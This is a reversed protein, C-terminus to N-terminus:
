GAPKPLSAHEPPGSQSGGLNYGPNIGASVEFISRRANPSGATPPTGHGRTDSCSKASAAGHELQRRRYGGARLLRPQQRGGVLLHWRALRQDPDPEHDLLHFASEITGNWHRIIGPGGQNGHYSMPAWPYNPRSKQSDSPCILTALANYAVTSNQPQDPAWGQNYANYLPGQEINPLLCVPWSANWGWSGTGGQGGFTAGMWMDEAPIVNLDFSLQARGSRTAEPQQHVAGASGGRSGVPRRAVLLAILVAIIAIVVLLEILTFGQRVRAESM